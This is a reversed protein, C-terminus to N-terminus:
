SRKTLKILTEEDAKNAPHIDDADGIDITVAMGTNSIALCQRQSECLFSWADGGRADDNPKRYAPLQVFYFPLAEDRFVRRREEILAGLAARYQQAATIDRANGEGQYWLVGCLSLPALPAIM